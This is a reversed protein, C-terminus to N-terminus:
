AALFRAAMIPRGVYGSVYSTVLVIRGDPQFALDDCGNTLGIPPPGPQEVIGQDESPSTRRATRKSDPSFPTTKVAAEVPWSGAVSSSTIPEM